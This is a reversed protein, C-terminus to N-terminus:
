RQCGLIKREKTLSDHQGRLQVDVYQQKREKESQVPGAADLEGPQNRVTEELRRPWAAKEVSRSSTAEDRVFRIYLCRSSQQDRGDRLLIGGQIRAHHVQETALLHDRRDLIYGHRYLAEREHHIQISLLACANTFTFDSNSQPNKHM